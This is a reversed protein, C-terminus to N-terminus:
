ILGLVLALLYIVGYTLLILVSTSLAAIGKYFLVDGITAIRRIFKEDIIKKNCIYNIVSCVLPFILTIVTAAVYAVIGYKFVSVIVDYM